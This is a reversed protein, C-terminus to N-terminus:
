GTEDSRASASYQPDKRFAVEAMRDSSLALGRAYDRESQEASIQARIQALSEGRYGAEPEQWPEGTRDLAAQAIGHLVCARSWEGADAALCALGLVAYAIDFHEGSRRSTRLGDEFISQAGDADGDQRRVWGLNITVPSSHGGTAQGARAAAELHARAAPIDGVRLAHVGADNHLFGAFLLDGSRETCAIAEDYLKGSRVPDGLDICQVYGSMAEALLVDDGLPRAREVSEQGLQVGREAEGAFYCLSSLVALAKIRLRGDDLQRALEVAQEGYRLASAIGSVRSLIATVRVAEGFLAPDTRAEPRELM